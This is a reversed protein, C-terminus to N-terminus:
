EVCVIKWDDDVKKFSLTVTNTLEVEGYTIYTDAKYIAFNENSEVRVNSYSFSFDDLEKVDVIGKTFDDIEPYFDEPVISKLTEVDSHILADMFDNGISKVSGSGCSVFIFSVFILLLINKKNM